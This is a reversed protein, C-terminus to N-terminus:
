PLDPVPLLPDGGRPAPRPPLGPPNIRPEDLLKARSPAVCDLFGALPATSCGTLLAVVIPFCRRM